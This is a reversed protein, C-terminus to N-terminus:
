FYLVLVSVYLLISFGIEIMGTRKATVETKPLIAARLLLILLPVLLPPVPPIRIPLNYLSSGASM